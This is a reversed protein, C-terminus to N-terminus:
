RGLLPIIEALDFLRGERDSTPDGDSVFSFKAGGTDDVEVDVAAEGLEWSLAVKGDATAGVAPPAVGDFRALVDVLEVAVGIARLGVCRAGYSDWNSSLAALSRVQDVCNAAWAQPKPRPVLHWPLRFAIAGTDTGARHPTFGSSESSPRRTPMMM